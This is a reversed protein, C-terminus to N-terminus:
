RGHGLVVVKVTKLLIWLDRSLSMHKGYYLDYQLKEYADQISAAYSYMVQAWGTVGPKLYHRLDYYPIHQKLLEVFCPREPRPGVLSMEGRLVNYLQPLEDLHLKRLIRGVNTTRQDSKGAWTPGVDREADERMSRFKYLVFDRGFQGVRVQKLLLPGRSDLRIALAILAMLPATLFLLLVAGVLDLSRKLFLYTPSLRFGDSYILWEPHLGELWIKGSLKEYVDVADEIDVGRLKCAILARAMKERDQSSEEALVIRSIGDLGTLEQLDKYDLTAGPSSLRESLQSVPTFLGKPRDNKNGHLLERYLKEALEGTGLILVGEVSKKPRVLWLGAFLLFFLAATSEMSVPAPLSWARWALPFLLVVLALGGAIVLFGRPRVIWYPWVKVM